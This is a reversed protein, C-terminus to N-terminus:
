RFALNRSIADRSRERFAGAVRDADRRQHRDLYPSRPLERILFPFTRKPSAIGDWRDSVTDRAVWLGVWDIRWSGAEFFFGFSRARAIPMRIESRLGLTFDGGVLGDVAGV